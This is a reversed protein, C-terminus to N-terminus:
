RSHGDGFALQPNSRNATDLVELVRKQFPLENHHRAAFVGKLRKYSMISGLLLRTCRHQPPTRSWVDNPFIPAKGLTEPNAHITSRVNDSASWICESM